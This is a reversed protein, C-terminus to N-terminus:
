GIKQFCNAIYNEACVRFTMSTLKKEQKAIKEIELSKAEKERKYEIPDIGSDLKAKAATGKVRAKALLNTKANYGGLGM